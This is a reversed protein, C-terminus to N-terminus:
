LGVKTSGNQIMLHILRTMVKFKLFNRAKNIDKRATKHSRHLLYKGSVFALMSLLVLLFITFTSKM